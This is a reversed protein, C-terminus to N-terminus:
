LVLHVCEPLHFTILMPLDFFPIITRLKSIDHNAPKFNDSCAISEEAAAVYSICVSRVSALLPPRTWCLERACVLLFILHFNCLQLKSNSFTAHTIAVGGVAHAEICIHARWM